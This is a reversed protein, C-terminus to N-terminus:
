PVVEVCAAVPLDLVRALRKLHPDEPHPRRQGSYRRHLWRSLIVPSLGVLRCLEQQPYGAAREARVAAIFRDTVQWHQESAPRRVHAM